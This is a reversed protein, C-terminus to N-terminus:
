FGAEFWIYSRAKGNVEKISFGKDEYVYFAGNTHSLRRGPPGFSELLKEIRLPPIEQEVIEITGDVALVRLNDKVMVQLDIMLTGNEENEASEGGWEGGIKYRYSRSTKTHGTERNVHLRSFELGPATGQPPRPFSAIPPRSKKAATERNKRGSFRDFNYLVDLDRPDLSRAKRLIQLAKPATDIDMEKGYYYLAVALNNLAKADRPRGELVTNCVAQAAAYKRSLILAAALNYRCPADLKDRRAASRFYHLAKELYRAIHKNKLVDGGARFTLKGASSKDHIATSLRFRSYVGPFNGRILKLALHLYCAGTDNLVERAPYVKAFERFAAIGDHYAGKQLLLVGARFLEIHRIVTSLNSRIFEVRKEMAPHGGTDQYYYREGIRRAWRSLFDNSPAFLPSVRYGAMAAYVAGQRDALLERKKHNRLQEKEDGPKEFYPRLEERVRTDPHSELDLFAEQHLFDRNALHALEHGLIFAMRSDGEKEQTGSYCLDLAATDIIIGGDPIAMARPKGAGGPNIIYLRPIRGGTKDAVATLRQFVEFARRVKPDKVGAAKGYDGYNYLWWQTYNKGQGQLHGAIFVVLFLFYIKKM